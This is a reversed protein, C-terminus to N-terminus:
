GEIIAVTQGEAVVDEEKVLIQRITGTGESEVPIEMKMSDVIMLVDGVSVPEGPNRLIKWVMGAVSTRVEITSM